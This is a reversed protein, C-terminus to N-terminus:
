SAEQVKIKCKGRNLKVNAERPRKLANILNPDHESETEGWVLIDDVIGAVGDLGAYTDDIRM